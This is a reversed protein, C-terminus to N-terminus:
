MGGLPPHLTRENVVIVQGDSLTRYPMAHQNWYDVVREMLPAEPHDSRWHPAISFPVLGLGDWVVDAPYGPPVLHPEDCLETGRLTPTVAIAGASYGGYVLRDTDLLGRVVTDFGSAQMARRLVFTNGGKVWVLDVEALRSALASPNGFFERLDLGSARIGIATLDAVERALADPLSDPWPDHANTIVAARAGTGTLHQLLRPDNGLRFSSLYLRM